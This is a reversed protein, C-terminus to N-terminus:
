WGFGTAGQTPSGTTIVTSSSTGGGGQVPGGGIPNWPAPDIPQPVVTGVQPALLRSLGYLIGGGVVVGTATSGADRWFTGKERVVIQQAPQQQSATLFLNTGGGSGGGQQQGCCSSMKSLTLLGNADSMTAAVEERVLGRVMRYNSIMTEASNDQQPSPAVPAAPMNNFVNIVPPQGTISNNNVNSTGAGYRGSGAIPDSNKGPKTPTYNYIFNWCYVSMVPIDWGPYFLAEEGPKTQRDWSGWKQNKADWYSTTIIGSVPASYLKAIIQEAIEPTVEKFTSYKNNLFILTAMVGKNYAGIPCTIISTDPNKDLMWSVTSAPNQSGQNKLTADYVGTAFNQLTIVIMVAAFFINKKM